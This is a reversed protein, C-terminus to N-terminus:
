VVALAAEVAAWAAAEVVGFPQGADIVRWGAADSGALELYGARVREHFAVTERDFHDGSGAGARRALGEEVPLDLLLTLDAALGGTAIANAREVLAAPPKWVITM